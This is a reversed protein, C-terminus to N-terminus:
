DIYIWIIKGTKNAETLLLSEKQSSLMRLIYLLISNKPLNDSVLSRFSITRQQTPIQCQM